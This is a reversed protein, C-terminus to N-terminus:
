IGGAKVILFEVKQGRLINSHQKHIECRVAIIEMYLTLHSTKIVLVSLTKQATRVPGKFLFIVKTGLLNLRYITGLWCIYGSSKFVSM